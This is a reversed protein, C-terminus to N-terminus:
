ISSSTCWIGLLPLRAPVEIKVLLFLNARLGCKSNSHGKGIPISAISRLDSFLAECFVSSPCLENSESAYEM